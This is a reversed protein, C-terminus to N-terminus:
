ASRVISFLCKDNVTTSYQLGKKTMCVYKNSKMNKIFFKGDPNRLIMFYTRLSDVDLEGKYDPTELGCLNQTDCSPFSYSRIEDAPSSYLCEKKGVKYFIYVSDAVRKLEWDLTTHTPMKGILFDKCQVTDIIDSNLPIGDASVIKYRGDSLNSPAGLFAYQEKSKQTLRYLCFGVVIVLIVVIIQTNDM